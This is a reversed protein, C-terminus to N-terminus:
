ESTDPAGILILVIYEPTQNYVECIKRLKMEHINFKFLETLQELKINQNKITYLM